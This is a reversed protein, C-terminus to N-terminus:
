NFPRIPLIPQTVSRIRRLTQSIRWLNVACDAGITGPLIGSTRVLADMRLRGVLDCRARQLWEPCRGSVRSGLLGSGNPQVAAPDVRRRGLWARTPAPPDFRPCDSAGFRARACAQWDDSNLTFEAEDDALSGDKKLRSDLYLCDLGLAGKFAPCAYCSRVCVGATWVDCWAAVGM